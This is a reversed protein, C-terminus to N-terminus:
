DTDRVTRVSRYENRDLLGDGNADVSDFANEVAAVSRAEVRSVYGNRDSDVYVFAVYGSADVSAAPDAFSRTVALAALAMFIPSKM